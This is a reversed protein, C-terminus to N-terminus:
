AQRDDRKAQELGGNWAAALEGVRVDVLGSVAMSEGGVVGLVVSPAGARECADGLEGLRDPALSVVIRSQAEGFLAADWRGTVGADISAGVGGIICSEAISVAVGGDSCDHASSLLGRDAAERCARQVAAELEIDLSPRGVVLGHVLELYESGALSGAAGALEGAGILVIVDGEAEFGPTVHTSVDEFLGVAGVIPTPYIAEGRTENYLSVNGSVVPAGLARSAAAMGEVCKELQYYVDAREPNGFNLCNTLAVPEAGMASVNRCAEAVAIMGGAYPDLYCYRGNGDTAMALGKRTGKIRLVAADAGPDAVTNLQVHHDYQRYVPAKSAINPSALLRLLVSSLSSDPLPVSDLDYGQLGAQWAPEEGDLRYQPADRLTRVPAEGKRVGGEYINANRGETVRGIVTAPCDWREFIGRVEDVSSEKVFVLMREQSESLMVEYPTM